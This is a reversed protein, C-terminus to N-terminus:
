SPSIIVRTDLSRIVEAEEARCEAQRVAEEARCEAQRVMKESSQTLLQLQQQLTAIDESRTAPARDTSSRNDADAVCAEPRIVSVGAAVESPAETQQAMQRCMPQPESAREPRPVLKPEPEAPEPEPVPVPEPVPPVRSAQASGPKPMKRAATWSPVTAVIPPPAARQQEIAADMARMERWYASNRMDDDEDDDIDDKDDDDDGGSGGGDGSTELEQVHAVGLTLQV